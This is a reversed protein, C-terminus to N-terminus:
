MCQIHERANGFDSMGILSKHAIKDFLRSFDRYWNKLSLVFKYLVSFLQMLANQASAVCDLLQNFYKVINHSM